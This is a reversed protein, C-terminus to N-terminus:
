LEAKSILKFNEETVHMHKYETYLGKETSDKLFESCCHKCSFLDQFHANADLKIMKESNLCKIEYFKIKEKDTLLDLKDYLENDNVRRLTDCAYTMYISYTEARCESFMAKGNRITCDGEFLMWRILSDTKETEEPDTIENECEGDKYYKIRKQYKLNYFNDAECSPMYHSAYKRSREYEIEKKAADM